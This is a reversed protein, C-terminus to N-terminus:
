CGNREERMRMRAALEELEVRNSPVMTTAVHFGGCVWCKYTRAPVDMLSAFRLAMTRTDYRHKRRCHMVMIRESRTLWTGRKREIDEIRALDAPTPEIWSGRRRKM